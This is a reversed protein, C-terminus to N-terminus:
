CGSVCRRNWFPSRHNRLLIDRKQIEAAPRHLSSLEALSDPAAAANKRLLSCRFDVTSELM